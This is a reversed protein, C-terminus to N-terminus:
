LAPELRSRCPTIRHSNQYDAGALPQALGEHFPQAFRTIRQDAHGARAGLPHHGALIDLHLPDRGVESLRGGGDLGNGLRQRATADIGEDVVEPQPFGLRKCLVVAKQGVM